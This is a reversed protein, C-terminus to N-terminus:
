GLNVVDWGYLLLQGGGKSRQLINREKKKWVHYRASNEKDDHSDDERIKAGKAMKDSLPPPCNDYAACEVGDGRDDVATEKM